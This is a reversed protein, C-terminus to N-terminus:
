LYFHSMIWGYNYFDPSVASIRQREFSINFEFHPRPFFQVGAGYTETISPLSFEGKGWEQVGFAWVGKAIEYSLKQTSFAGFQSPSSNAFEKAQFDIETLLALKDSFGILGYPGFLHRKYADTKGYLYSLGVKSKEGLAIGSLLNAGTERKLSSDEPRGFILGGQLSFVSSLWDYELNYSEYGQGLGVGQRTLTVHDPTNIGFAPLYKGIRVSSEDTPQYMLYFRRFIVHDRFLEANKPNQYGLTSVATWKGLKAAAELDSQMLITRGQTAFLDDKYVYVARVDGGLLLWSPPSVLGYAFQHDKSEESKSVWTSLLEKSLERGYESLIGGGTPSVHCSTCNVYGHRIMEPFAFAQSASFLSLVILYLFRRPFSFKM